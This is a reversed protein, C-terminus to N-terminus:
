KNDTGPTSTGPRTTSSGTDSGHKVSSVLLFKIGDKEFLTGTVQCQKDKWQSNDSSRDATTSGPTTSPRDTTGPTTGPRDTPSKTDSPSKITDDNRPVAFVSPAEAFCLIITGSVSTRDAAAGTASSSAMSANTLAMYQQKMMKDAKASADTRTSDPRTADTTGTRPTDGAGPRTSDPKITGPTTSSSDKQGTFYHHLDVVKGTLTVQKGQSATSSTIGPRTTDTPSKPDEAAFAPVAMAFLLSAAIPFRHNKM